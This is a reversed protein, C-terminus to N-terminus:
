HREIGFRNAREFVPAPLTRRRDVLRREGTRRPREDIRQQIRGIDRAAHPQEVDGATGPENRGLRALAAGVRGAQVERGRHERNGRRPVSGNAKVVAIGLHQRVRVLREIRRHRIEADVVHRPRGERQASACRTRRSPPLTANLKQASGLSFM